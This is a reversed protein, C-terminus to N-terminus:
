MHSERDRPTIKPNDGNAWVFFSQRLDPSVTERVPRCFSPSKEPSAGYTFTSYPINRCTGKTPVRLPARAGESMVESM